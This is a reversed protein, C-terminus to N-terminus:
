SNMSPSKCGGSFTLEAGHGDLLWSHALAGEGLWQYHSDKWAGHRAEVDPAERVSSPCFADSITTPVPVPRLM